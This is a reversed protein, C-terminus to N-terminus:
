DSHILRRIKANHMRALREWSTQPRNGTAYDAAPDLANREEGSPEIGDDEVTALVEATRRVLMDEGLWEILGNWGLTKTVEIAAAGLVQGRTEGLCGVLLSLM